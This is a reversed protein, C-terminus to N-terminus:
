GNLREELDKLCAAIAASFPAYFRLAQMLEPSGDADSVGYSALSLWYQEFGRLPPRKAIPTSDSQPCLYLLRQLKDGRMAQPLRTLRMPTIARFDLGSEVLFALAPALREKISNFENATRADIRVLTHISRGGSTYVADIPLPLQAILSLWKASDAEDSELLMYPFRRACEAIRRSRKVKGDKGMAARENKRWLGDVPASLFWVGDRGRVPIKEDPFVADGQSLQSTFVLIKENPRDYLTKLFKRASVQSVDIKSRNFFYAADYSASAAADLTEPKFVPKDPRKPPESAPSESAPRPADFDTGLLYGDQVSARAATRLKHELEYDKWPPQCRANFEEMLRRADSGTLSFGKVIVLAAKFTADHGGSGSVAPPLKALYRRCNEVANM